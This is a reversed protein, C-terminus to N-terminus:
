RSAREAPPKVDADLSQGRSRRRQLEEYAETLTFADRVVSHAIQRVTLRRIDERSKMASGSADPISRAAQGRGSAGIYLRADPDPTMDPRLASPSRSAGVTPRDPNSM